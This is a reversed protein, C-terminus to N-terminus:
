ERLADIEDEVAQIKDIAFQDGLAAGRLNRPTISAELAAIKSESSLAPLDVWVPMGNHSGLAKGAPPGGKYIAAIDDSVIVLDDPLSSSNSYIGMLKDPYFGLKSGSFRQM